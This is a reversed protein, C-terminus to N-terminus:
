SLLDVLAVSNEPLASRDPSQTSNVFPLTDTANPHRSPPRGPPNLLPQLIVRYFHNLRGTKNRLFSLTPPLCFWAVLLAFALLLLSPSQRPPPKVSIPPSAPVRHDLIWKTAYPPHAPGTYSPDLEPAPSNPRDGYPYNVQTYVVKVFSMEADDPSPLPALALRFTHEVKDDLDTVSWIPVPELEPHPTSLSATVDRTARKEGRITSVGASKDGLPSHLYAQEIDIVRCADNICIGQPAFPRVAYANPAGYLYMASGRFSLSIHPDEHVRYRSLTSRYILVSGSPGVERTVWPDFWSSCTVRKLPDLCRKKPNYSVSQDDYHITVNEFNAVISGPNAYGKEEFYNISKFPFVTGSRTPSKVLRISIRTERSPDLADNRWLLVPEYKSHYGENEYITKLDVTECLGLDLRVCVFGLIDRNEIDIYASPAGYIAVAGSKIKTSVGWQDQDAANHSELEHWSTVSGDEATHVKATWAPRKNSRGLSVPPSYSLFPHTDHMVVERYRWRDEKVPWPAPREATYVAHSFKIGNYKQINDVPNAVSIVIRHEHDQLEGRAFVVVPEDEDGSASYAETINAQYCQSKSSLHYSEYLCIKYDPPFEALQGSSPGYVWVDTGRFEITVSAFQHNLSSHFTALKGQSRYVGPTWPKLWSDCVKWFLWSNVWRDCEISADSYTVHVLNTDHITTNIRYCVIGEIWTAIVFVGWVVQTKLRSM